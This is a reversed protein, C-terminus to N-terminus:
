PCTPPPRGTPRARLTPKPLMGKGCGWGGMPGRGWGCCKTFAPATGVQCTVLLLWPNLPPSPISTPPTPNTTATSPTPTWFHFLAWAAWGTCKPTCADWPPPQHGGHAAYGGYAASHHGMAGGGGGRSSDGSAGVGPLGRFSLPFHEAPRGLHGERLPPAGRYAHGIDTHPLEPGSGVSAVIISGPTMPHLDGVEPVSEMLPPPPTSGRSFGGRWCGRGERGRAKGSGPSRLTRRRSRQGSRTSCFSM